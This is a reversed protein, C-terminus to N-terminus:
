HEDIGEDVGVHTYKSEGGTLGIEARIYYYNSIRFGDNNSENSLRYVDGISFPEGKFSRKYMNYLHLPIGLKIRKYFVKSYGPEVVIPFRIEDGIIDNDTGKRDIVISNLFSIIRKQKKPNKEVRDILLMVNDVSFTRRGINTVKFEIWLPLYSTLASKGDEIDAIDTWENNTWEQELKVLIGNQSHAEWKFAVTKSEHYIVYALLLSIASIVVSIIAIIIAINSKKDMFCLKGM